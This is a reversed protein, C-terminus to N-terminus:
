WTKGVRYKVSRKEGKGDIVTFDIEEGPDHKQRFWVLFARGTKPPSEGNVAMIIHDGRLGGKRGVWTEVTFPRVAMRDKPIGFRDRDKESM